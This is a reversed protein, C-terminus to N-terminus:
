KILQPTNLFLVNNESGLSKDFDQQFLVFNFILMCRVVMAHITPTIRYFNLRKEGMEERRAINTSIISRFKDERVLYISQTPM